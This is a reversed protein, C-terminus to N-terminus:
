TQYEKPLTFSYNLNQLLRRIGNSPISRNQQSLFCNPVNDVGNTGVNEVEDRLALVHQKKIIEWMM